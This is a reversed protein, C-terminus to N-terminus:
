AVEALKAEVDSVTLASVLAHQKPAHSSLASADQVILEVLVQGEVLLALYDGLVDPDISLALCAGLTAGERGSFSIQLRKWDPIEISAGCALLVCGRTV